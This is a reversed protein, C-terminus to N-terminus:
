GAEERVVASFGVAAKTTDQYFGRYTRNIIGLLEAKDLGERGNTRKRIVAQKVLNSLFAGVVEKGRLLALVDSDEFLKLIEQDDTRRRVLDLYNKPELAGVDIVQDFRGPRSAAMDLMAKDNTTTLVFVHNEVFGDLKQLFTGLVNKNFTQTRDGVILDLDDVCLIAPNFINAFSFLMNLRADGGSALIITAKGECAKAISRVIQTKATGPPGSLIYRMSLNLDGYRGVCEIFQHLDRSVAAPLFVDELASNGLDKVIEIGLGFPDEDDREAPAELVRLIKGKYMSNNIAEHILLDRLADPRKAEPSTGSIIIEHVIGRIEHHMRLLSVYYDADAYKIRAYIYSDEIRVLGTETQFSTRPKTLVPHEISVMGNFSDIKVGPHALIGSYLAHIYTKLFDFVWSNIEKSSSFVDVSDSKGQNEGRMFPM